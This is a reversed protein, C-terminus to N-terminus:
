DAFEVGTAWITLTVALEEWPLNVLSYTIFRYSSFPTYVRYMDSRTRQFLCLIINFSIINSGSPVTLNTEFTGIGAFGFLVFDCNVERRVVGVCFLVKM